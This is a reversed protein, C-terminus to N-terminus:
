LSGEEWGTRTDSSAVEVPEGGGGGGLDLEALIDRTLEDITPGQLLDAVSLRIKVAGQVRNRLEMATLSDMGIDMLSQDPRARSASPLALVRVIQETLFTRLIIAREDATADTIRRLVDGATNTRVRETPEPAIIREFFPGLTRPLRARDLPLAAVNPSASRQLVDQLMRVGEQPAIMGLGQSAWRRRHAEGVDAAMGVDSWSGWNISVAHRGQAQRVYAMADLFSNAAAYNSQGPSGLLSAGSSFMVFFDIPLAATFRHLNWTGRVKPAMVRGFRQLTQEPLMGDDVVGAAHLIGRLPPLTAAIQSLVAEVDSAISIDCAAVTVTVGASRMADIQAAVGDSPARRGLLVISRAGLSALWQACTIGLGGLGGTIMYTADGRVEPTRQQTIVLKGTHLGQGMFRFAEEARELPYVKQPLPTLVGSAFDDMLRQLMARIFQPQAATVEGLYLPHYKVGPFAQAVAAADWIGTKGIEIFHGGRKLLRLSTPIFDGALSNLVIDVGDGNTIRDFDDAFVLSRSDSLHDAGLAAAMARKAPSGATGFIEAGARRALQIAAMGVGGTAAHILVKDGRKVGALHSLAYEATLFTVPITAAEVFSLNVPKRVTQMAPAIVYTAFSKDIMTVVEDGVFLDDVGEGVATIVGACENGLPGPDGPYMGLANLVDRFNLGTAYVRLEVEGAGPAERPADVLALNELIGRETIELRRPTQAEVNRLTGQALRAVYRQGGRLAIRDEADAATIANTLLDVTDRRAAPELDIRTVRLAPYEAAIVNALGWTPAHGLDPVVDGVPQAGRTVIWLRAGSEAMAPVLALLAGLRLAATRELTDIDTNGDAGSEVGLMSVVGQWPTEDRLEAEAFLRACQTADTLDLTWGSATGEYSAGQHAIFVSAGRETLRSAIDAALQSGDTILLWKGTVPLPPADLSAAQWAVELLWDPKVPKDGGKQMSAKTVRHMELGEIRAVIAGDADTLLLDSIISSNTANTKISEVLCWIDTPAVSYVRYSALGVPVCIDDTSRPDDAWPLGVGFIQICADLLAPHVLYQHNTEHLIEPLRVRGLVRDGSKAISTLARFAPGYYAGQAHLKAYYAPIDTDVRDADPITRLGATPPPTVAHSVTAALHLRWGDNGATDADGEELASFVQVQKSGDEQATVLVQLTVSGPEPITLGERLSVQSLEVDATRMVQRGAALAVELFGTVPFLATEYIRHDALWPTTSVSLEVQYLPVPSALRQGLLPHGADRGGISAKPTDRQLTDFWYRERQFPYSPLEVRRATADCVTKWAIPQGGIHLRGASELLAERDSRGKKLSSIWVVDAGRACRQGMGVLVPSPGIELFTGIHESHLTAISDTFLVADRVHRRWYAATTVEAGAMRGTVNSVLGIAPMAYAVSAAVREFEDLMPDMLPSHFAHSVNLRSFEIGQTTLSILIAEVVTSRGSIVTNQPGNVAAIGVDAEFGRLADSVQQQTAFVAVMSGDRPLASMLRGRAVILRLGDELSFVGALCAAVYEGVSHGMVVAPEVGWSKWLQALAYEVAFLAPQTFATDDLLRAVDPEGMIVPILRAPLLPDAIAACANLADRFVSESEYLERSMGSYQAGQGSFLFGIEAATGSAFRGRWVAPTEADDLYAQLMEAATAGSDSVLALRETLHSRGLAATAAVDGFAAADPQRLMTVYRMALARLAVDSQASLLLAQARAPRENVVPRAPAEEIIVHSNTGSFGFSSVGARRLAGTASVWPTPAVPIQVPVTDWPILHNPTVFHLHPPIVEHQMALIVKMMGAVGSAAELHGINTKVSGVVLPQDSPREGFVNGLAKIEIPDGLPTGTGHAEIVSIDQPRLQANALADRIVAEQATGNPATLGSSRGDQNIASGRLVALIRDGDREADSLRKLVMMGCGEGRVYGDASDDFTKCHGDFSMMRARSTLISGLDSLTLNVGGAIALSTESKRLSQIAGHIAVVSSSCATDVAINPGHIGLFYSLRGSAISHASGSASYADGNRAGVVEAILNAYDNTSIGVFISARTGALSSPAIGAHELAEWTVELLLRQQPDMTVAERPSIGFFAADFTEVDDIFAGWKTYSRAVVDPDGDFSAEADWRHRPVVTVADTGTSLLTWFGAPDNARGPYRCAMGVVAIPESKARDIEAIRAELKDIAVLSRKLLARYDPQQPESM